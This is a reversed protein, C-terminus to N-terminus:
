EQNDNEEVTLISHKSVDGGSDSSAIKEGIPPLVGVKSYNQIGGSSTASTTDISQRSGPSHNELICDLTSM